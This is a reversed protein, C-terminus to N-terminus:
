LSRRVSLHLSTRRKRDLLMKSQKYVPFVGNIRLCKCVSELDKIYLLKHISELDKIKLCKCNFPWLKESGTGISASVDGQTLVQYELV